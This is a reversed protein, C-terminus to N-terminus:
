LEELELIRIMADKYIYTGDTRIKRVFDALSMKKNREIQWSYMSVWDLLLDLMSYDCFPCGKPKVKQLFEKTKTFMKVHSTGDYKIIIYNNEM